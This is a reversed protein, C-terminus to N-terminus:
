IGSWPVKIRSSGMARRWSCVPDGLSWLSWSWNWRTGAILVAAIITTTTATRISTQFLTVALPLNWISARIRSRRM